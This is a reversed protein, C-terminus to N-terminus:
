DEVKSHEVVWNTIQKENSLADMIEGLDDLGMDEAILAVIEGCNRILRYVSQLEQSSSWEYDEELNGSQMDELVSCCDELDHNTNEFRCYSMNM